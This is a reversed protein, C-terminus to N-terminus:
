KSVIAAVEKYTTTRKNVVADMVCKSIKKLGPNKKDDLLSSPPPSSQLDEQRRKVKSDTAPEDKMQESFYNKPEKKGTM